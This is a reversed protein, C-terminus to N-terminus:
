SAIEVVTRALTHGERELDSLGLAQLLDRPGTSRTATIQMRMRLRGGSLRLEQLNALLDLPEKHGAREVPYFPKSMLQEIASSLPAHRDSPVPIEYQVHEVRAKPQGDQLVSAGTFLLDPPAHAALRRVLEASDVQEALQVEMVEEAGRIGVSLALPFSMRPHPHYGQSMALVCGARRFLREFTRM